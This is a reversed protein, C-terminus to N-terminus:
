TQCVRSANAEGGNIGFRFEKGFCLFIPNMQWVAGGWFEIQCNHELLRRACLRRRLAIQVRVQVFFSALIVFDSGSRTSTSQDARNLM